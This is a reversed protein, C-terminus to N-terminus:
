EITVQDPQNNSSWIVGAWAVAADLDEVASDLHLMM